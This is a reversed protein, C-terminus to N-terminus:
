DEEWNRRFFFLWGHYLLWILISWFPWRVFGFPLILSEERARGSCGRFIAQSLYPQAMRSKFTLGACQLEVCPPPSVVRAPPSFFVLRHLTMPRRTPADARQGDGHDFDDSCDDVTMTTPYPHPTSNARSLRRFLHDNSVDNRYPNPSTSNWGRRM